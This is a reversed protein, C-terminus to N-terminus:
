QALPLNNHHRYLNDCAYTHNSTGKMGEFALMKQTTPAIFQHDGSAKVVAGFNRKTATQVMSSRLLSGARSALM